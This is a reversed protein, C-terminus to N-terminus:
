LTLFSVDKAVAFETPTMNSLSKFEHNFHAQDYYGNNLALNTFNSYNGSELQKCVGLFRHIKLFEKPSLGTEKKFFRRIQRESYGAKKSLQKISLERINQVSYGILKLSTRGRFFDKKFFNLLFNQILIIGERISHRSHLESLLDHLESGFILEAEISKGTLEKLAVPVIYSAGWPFFRVSFLEFTGRSGIKVPQKDQLLLFSKSEQRSISGIETLFPTDLHIVWEVLGDPMITQQYSGTLSGKMYWIKQIVHNLPSQPTYEFYNLNIM